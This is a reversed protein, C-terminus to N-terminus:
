SLRGNYAELSAAAASVREYRSKFDATGTCLAELNWTDATKQECRKM